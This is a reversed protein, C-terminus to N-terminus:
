FGSEVEDFAHPKIPAVERRVKYRIWFPHLADVVVGVQEDM